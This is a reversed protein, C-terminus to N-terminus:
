FGASELGSFIDDLKGLLHNKKLFNNMAKSHNTANHGKCRCLGCRNTLRIGKTISHERKAYELFLAIALAASSADLGCFDLIKGVVWAVFGPDPIGCFNVAATIAADKGKGLGVKLPAYIAVILNVDIPAM